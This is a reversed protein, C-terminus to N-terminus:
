LPSYMGGIQQGSLIKYDMRAPQAPRDQAHKLKPYTLEAFWQAMVCDTTQSEPYRTVENYIAMCRGRSLQDGSPLDILGHKYVPPLLAQVGYEKNTKNAYTDHPVVKVRRTGQWDRIYDTQLLFRQAANQELVIHTIPAGIAKSHQHWDELLGTYSQTAIIYNLFDGAEMRKRAHDILFRRETNHQIVWWQISWFKTPSPDATVFSLWPRALNPPLEGMVRDRNWCGLFAEGTEVDVGGNIWLPNVLVMTPDIDEQQYSQAYLKPDEDKIAMLDRYTLRKPDLLYGGSQPDYPNYPKATAPHHDGKCLEDYHAKFKVHTYKKRRGTPEGWGDDEYDTIEIDLM